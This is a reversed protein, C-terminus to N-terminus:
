LGNVEGLMNASKNSDMRFMEPISAEEEATFHDPPNGMYALNLYNERTLPIGALIMHNLVPSSKRESQLNKPQANSQSKPM